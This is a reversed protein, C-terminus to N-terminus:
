INIRVHCEALDCMLKEVSEFLEAHISNKRAAAVNEPRDDTFFIRDPPCGAAEIANQYIRQDPKMSGSEFSLIRFQKKFIREISAFRSTLFEWHAPCTNSLLGIPFGCNQLQTLVPIMSRNVDFIDSAAKLFLAPDPNTKSAAAFRSVFEGSSVSGTEYETQLTTEHIIGHVTTSNVGTLQAINHCGIEPDFHVVVNGLDFYIFEISTPM